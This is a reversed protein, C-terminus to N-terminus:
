RRVMFARCRELNDTAFKIDVWANEEEESGIGFEYIVSGLKEFYRVVADHEEKCEDKNIM